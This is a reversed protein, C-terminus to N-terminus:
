KSNAMIKILDIIQLKPSSDLVTKSFKQSYSSKETPDGSLQRHLMSKCKQNTNPPNQDLIELLMGELCIPTSQIITIKNKKATKKNEESLPIDSDMLVYRQDYNIHKNKIASRIIDKPSGGDATEIKIKQGTSRNDYLDKMHSLFAKDHPGEGVIILSALKLRQKKTAM